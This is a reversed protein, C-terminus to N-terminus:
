GMAKFRYFATVILIALHAVCLLAACWGGVIRCKPKCAGYGICVMNAVIALMMVANVFFVSSWNSGFDRCSKDKLCDKADIATQLAEKDDTFPGYYCAVDYLFINKEVNPVDTYRAQM